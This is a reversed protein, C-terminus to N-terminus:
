HSNLTLAKLTYTLNGLGYSLPTSMKLLVGRTANADANEVAAYSFIPTSGRMDQNIGLSVNLYRIQKDETEPDDDKGDFFIYDEVKNGKEDKVGELASIIQGDYETSLEAVSSCAAMTQYAAGDQPSCVTFSKTGDLSFSRLAARLQSNDFVLGDLGIEIEGTEKSDLNDTKKIVAKNCDRNYFTEFVADTKVALGDKNYANLEKPAYNKIVQKSYVPKLNDGALRYKCVTVVEDGFELFEDKNAKLVYKGNLNLKTEYVYVVDKPAPNEGDTIKVGEPLNDSSWDYDTKDIYFSTTLGTKEDATYYEVSYTANAGEKFTVDYTAVEKHSRWFEVSNKEVTASTAVNWNAMTSTSSYAPGGSCGAVTAAGGAVLILALIRKVGKM